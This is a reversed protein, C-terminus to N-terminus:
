KKGNRTTDPTRNRAPIHNESLLKKIRAVTEEPTAAKYKKTNM